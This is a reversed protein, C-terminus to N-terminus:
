STIVLTYASSWASANGEADFARVWIHYTDAPLPATLTYSTTAVNAERLVQSTGTTVNDVWLDYRVANAVASWTLTPMASSTPSAPGTVTPALPPTVAVTFNVASTWAGLDGSADIARVWAQYSGNMLTATFSTGTLTPQRIVQTQATTLDNVWLDYHVAATVSTWTFTVNPTADTGGATMLTPTGLPPVTFPQASSWAGPNNNADYARIWVQYNGGAL